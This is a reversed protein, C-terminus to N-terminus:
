KISKKFENEDGKVMIIEDKKINHLLSIKQKIKEQFEEETWLIFNIERGIKSALNFISRSITDRDVNGIILVDMDSTETETGRAFSGYILAHKINFKKLVNAIVEDTLEFKLFIRKLENYIIGHKNIKYYAIHERKIKIIIDLPQIKYLERFATSPSTGARFAIDHLPYESNQNLFLIKLISILTRSRFLLELLSKKETIPKESKTQLIKEEISKLGKTIVPQVIEKTEENISILGIGLDQCIRIKDETIIESPLALYAYNAANKLHLVQKIANDMNAKEGKVEIMAIKGKKSVVFDPRIGRIKDPFHFTWGTKELYKEVKQEYYSQM